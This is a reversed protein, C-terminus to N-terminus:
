GALEEQLELVDVASDPNPVEIEVPTGYDYFEMAYMMDGTQAGMEPMPMEMVMKRVLDDDDLWVEVPVRSEGLMEVVRDLTEALEPKEGALAEYDIIAEYHTTDVGRIKETGVEQVDTAGALYEIGQVPDSQSQMLQSFDIGMQEGMTQLDFSLWTKGPPLMPDFVGGRMYIVTGDLVMEMTGMSALAPDSGSMEMKMEGRRSQFDFIGEARTLMKSPAAGSTLDMVMDMSVRVSGQAKTADGALSLQNPELTTVGDSQERTVEDDQRSSGQEPRSGCSTTLVALAVLALLIWRSRLTGGTFM